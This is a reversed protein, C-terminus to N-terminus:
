LQKMGIDRFHLLNPLSLFVNDFHAQPEQSAIHACLEPSLMLSLSRIQNRTPCGTNHPFSFLAMGHINEKRYDQLKSHLQKASFSGFMFEFRVLLDSYIKFNLHYALPEDVAERMDDLIKLRDALLVADLIYSPAYERGGKERSQRGAVAKLQLGM